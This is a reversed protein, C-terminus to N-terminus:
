CGNSVSCYNSDTRCWGFQSCCYGGIDAQILVLSKGVEVNELNQTVDLVPQVSNAHLEVNVMLAVVNVMQVVEM